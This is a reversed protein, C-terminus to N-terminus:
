SKDGWITIPVNGESSRASVGMRGLWMRLMHETPFHLYPPTLNSMLTERTQRWTARGLSLGSRTPLLGYFPVIMDAILAAGRPGLSRSFRRLTRLGLRMVANDGPFIWLGVLGGPKLVRVLEQLAAQPDATLALVGFSFVADFSADLFPLAAMDGHVFQWNPGAVRNAERLASAAIDLGVAVSEPNLREQCLAAVHAGEGCGADLITWPQTASFRELLPVLFDRAIGLKAPALDTTANRDWHDELAPDVDAVFSPFPGVFPFGGHDPCLCSRGKPHLEVPKKCAPCALMPALLSLRGEDVARRGM